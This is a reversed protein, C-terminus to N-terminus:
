KNSVIKTHSKKKGLSKSKVTQQAKKEVTKKKVENAPKV